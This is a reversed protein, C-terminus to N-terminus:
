RRGAVALAAVGGGRLLERRAFQKPPISAAPGAPTGLPPTSDTHKAQSMPVEMNLTLAPCSCWRKSPESKM